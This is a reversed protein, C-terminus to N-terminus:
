DLGSTQKCLWQTAVLLTKIMIAKNSNEVVTKEIRAKKKKLTYMHVPSIAWHHLGNSKCDQLNCNLNWFWCLPFKGVLVQLRLGSPSSVPLHGGAGSRVHFKAASLSVLEKTTGGWESMRRPPCDEKQVKNQAVPSWLSNQPTRFSLCQGKM